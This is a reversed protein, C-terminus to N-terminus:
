NVELLDLGAKIILIIISAQYELLQICNLLTIEHKFCNTFFKRRRINRLLCVSTLYISLSFEFLM